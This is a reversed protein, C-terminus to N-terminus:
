NDQISQSIDIDLIDAGRKLADTFLRGTGVGIELIKGDTQNIEKLFFENDIGNRQHCYILDYFRCLKKSIRM